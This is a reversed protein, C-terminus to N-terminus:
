KKLPLGTNDTFSGIAITVIDIIWGIGFCGATCFWIIGTGVKGVYFRHIGLYGFLICIVLAAMKSRQSCVRVYQQNPYVSNGYGEGVYGENMVVHPADYGSGAGYNQANQPNGYGSGAGNNQANQPNGYGSGAGNNQPNGYGSGAGNNQAEQPQEYGCYACTAGELPAGCAPCTGAM